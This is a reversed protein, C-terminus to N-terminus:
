IAMTSLRHAGAPAQQTDTNSYSPNHADGWYMGSAHLM